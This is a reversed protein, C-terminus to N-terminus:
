VGPRGTLRRVLFGGVQGAIKLVGYAFAEAGRIPGAVAGVSLACLVPLKLVDLIKRALLGPKPQAFFPRPNFRYIFKPGPVHIFDGRLSAAMMFPTDVWWATNWLPIGRVAETRWVGYIHFMLGFASQRLRQGASLNATEFGGGRGTPVGDKLEVVDGFALIAKPSAKLADILKEAMDPERLDDHAAWMFFPAKAQRLVFSFNEAIPRTKEQRVYRIRPDTAALRACVDATGDTSANDSIIIEIDSLTQGLVSRVARELTEAGNFVPMGISLVPAPGDVPTASL